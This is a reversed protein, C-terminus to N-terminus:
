NQAPPGMFTGHFGFPVVQGTEFQARGIEKFSRADLVLLFSSATASELVISLVVGDDEDLPVLSTEEGASNNGPITDSGCKRTPVFVPESPFCGSSRWEVSTQTQVNFKVLAEFPMQASAVVCYVFKYNPDMLYLNNIVPMEPGPPSLVTFKAQPYMNMSSNRRAKPVGKSGFLIYNVLGFMTKKVAGPMPHRHKGIRSLVFRRIRSSEFNVTGKRFKEMYMEQINHPTDYACLDIVISESEEDNEVITPLQNIQFNAEEAEYSEAPRSRASAKSKSGTTETSDYANIVHFVFFSKCEFTDVLIKKKRDIVYFYAPEEPCWELASSVTKTFVIPLGGYAWYYPCSILIIYKKTMAFSHMYSARRSNMSFIVEGGQPHEKCVSFVHTRVIPGPEQIFNVYEKTQGDYLEHASTMIGKFQKNMKTYNIYGQSDLTYEDLEQLINADTKALLVERFSLNGHEDYVALPYRPTVSVNV